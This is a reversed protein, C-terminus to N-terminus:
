LGLRVKLARVRDRSVPLETTGANNLRAVMRGGFDAHLDLLHDLNLIVGRHIRVFRAPNLRTELEAITLDVVYDRDPTAAFTLKDRAFLHTVRRLDVVEVKDGVRSALRPLWARDTKPGLMAAIRALVARVDSEQAPQGAFREAKALARDLQEPEVPKLLYDISNTRFADLAYRDYATTFVVLPQVPLQALLEFGSLGPMHIDLFLLDPRLTRVETLADVPDTSAGIIQVRGTLELMRALRDLAPPEDDVLYARIM